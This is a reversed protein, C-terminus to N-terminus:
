QRKPYGEEGEVAEIQAAHDRDHVRQFALWEKWSLPGFFPHDHRAELNTHPNVRGVVELLQGRVEALESRLEALSQGIVGDTEASPEGAGALRAIIQIAGRETGVVHRVIERISWQGASPAFGAQEESVDELLEALRRREEEILEVIASVDKRGQHALYSVVRDRIEDPLVM